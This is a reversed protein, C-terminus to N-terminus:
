SQIQEDEDSESGEKNSIAAPETDKNENANEANAIENAAENEIENAAKTKTKQSQLQM